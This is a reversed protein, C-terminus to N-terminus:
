LEKLLEKLQPVIKEFEVCAEEWKYKLMKNNIDSILTSLKDPVYLLVLLYYEGYLSMNEDNAHAICSGAYKLYNEIINKKYLTTEEFHKQQLELKKIRLQFRNNIVTTIAPAFLACFAIVATIIVSLTEFNM